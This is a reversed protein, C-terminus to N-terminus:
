AQRDCTTADQGLIDKWARQLADPPCHVREGISSPTRLAALLRQEADYAKAATVCPCAHVKVWREGLVEYPVHRNVDALRSAVDTAWGIKWVDREGFRFVYVSAGLPPEPRRVLTEGWVPEPGRTPGEHRMPDRPVEVTTQGAGPTNEGLIHLGEQEIAAEDPYERLRENIQHFRADDM